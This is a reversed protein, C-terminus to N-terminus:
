LGEEQLAMHKVHLRVHKDRMAFRATKQLLTAADLINRSVLKKM